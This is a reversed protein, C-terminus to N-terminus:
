PGARARASRSRRSRVATRSSARRDRAPSGPVPDQRAFRIADPRYSRAYRSRAGHRHLQAAPVTPAAAQGLRRHRLCRPSTGQSGKPHTGSVPPFVQADAAIADIKCRKTRRGIVEASWRDMAAPDAKRRASLPAPRTAARPCTLDLGNVPTRGQGMKGRWRSRRRPVARVLLCQRVPRSCATDPSTGSM